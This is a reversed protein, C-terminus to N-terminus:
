GSFAAAPEAFARELGEVLQGVHLGDVLAHHVDVSFPMWQREGEADVRGFAFKPIADDARGPRAHTFSTFHVWPLTTFHLQATDDDDPEFRQPQRAAEIASRTQAVFADFDPTWPLRAFGISGDNRLVTTSAHVIRHVLVRDPGDFRLRFAEIQQALRLVQWHCAVMLGSRGTEALWRKLPAVDLRTCLSFHPRAYGRFHDFTQRRPWTELDLEPAADSATVDNRGAGM